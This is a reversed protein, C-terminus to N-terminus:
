RPLLSPALRKLVLIQFSSDMRCACQWFGWTWIEVLGAGMNGCIKCLTYQVIHAIHKM